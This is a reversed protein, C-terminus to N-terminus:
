NIKVFRTHSLNMAVLVPAAIKKCSALVSIAVGAIVSLLFSKTKMYFTKFM